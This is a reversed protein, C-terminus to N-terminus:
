PVVFIIEQNNVSIIETVENGCLTITFDGNEDIPFGSGSITAQIGGSPSSTSPTLSTVTLSISTASLSSDDAFGIQSVHVKPKESGAPLAVSSDANTPFNCTFSAITGSLDTCQVGLLSVTIDSLAFGISSPDTISLTMVNSALTASSTVPTAASNFTYSCDACVAPISNVKLSLSPNESEKYLFDM